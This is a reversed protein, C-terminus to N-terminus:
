QSSYINGFDREALDEETIRRKTMVKNLINAIRINKFTSNADNYTSQQVTEHHLMLQALDRREEPLVTSVVTVALYRIETCTLRNYFHNKAINFM